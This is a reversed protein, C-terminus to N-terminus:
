FTTSCEFTEKQLLTKYLEAEQLEMLEGRVPWYREWSKQGLEARFSPNQELERFAQRFGEPSDPVVLADNEIVEPFPEWFPRALVLPLKCAMAELMPISIGGYLMAMAFAHAERYWRYIDKNPVSSIFHVQTSLKLKKVLNQASETLPGQGILVLHYPTGSLAKILNRPDKGPIHRGVSILSFPERTSGNGNEPPSYVKNYIIKTKHVPVNQFYRLTFNYAGIIADAGSYSQRETCFKFVTSYALSKVCSLGEVRWLRKRSFDAHLSLVSPIGLAKGVEVAFRGEFRPNFARVMHPGFSRALNVIRAIEKKLSLIKEIKKMSGVPVVELLAKGAIEQVEEPVVDEDCPTFITVRDFFNEPNYYREKIEGKEVYAKLPDNAFVLLHPMRKPEM